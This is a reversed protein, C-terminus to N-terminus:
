KKGGGLLGGLLGGLVDGSGGSSGGLLGGLIDGIGGSSAPAASSSAKKQGFFQNAVWAMVIPAVIPLLKGIIDATASTKDSSAVARVVDDKKQGFVNTVIKEGDTTDVDALSSVASGQHRDLAKELSAAGAPDQANASMGGVLSPIVQRIASDAVDESVGLSKAIDAVPIQALLDSYDAM